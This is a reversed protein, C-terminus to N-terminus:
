LNILHTIERLTENMASITKLISQYNSAAIKDENLDDLIGRAENLIGAIQREVKKVDTESYGALYRVFVLEDNIDKIRDGIAILKNRVENKQDASLKERTSPPRFFDEIQSESAIHPVNELDLFSSEQEQEEYPELEPIRESRPPSTPATATRGAQPPISPSEINYEGEEEEGGEETEMINEGGVEGESARIHIYKRFYGEITLPIDPKRNILGYDFGLFRSDKQGLIIKNLLNITTTVAEDQPQNNLIIALMVLVKKTVRPNSRGYKKLSPEQEGRHRNEFRHRQMMYSVLCIKFIPIFKLLGSFRIQMIVKMSCIVGYTKFLKVQDYKNMNYELSQPKSLIPATLSESTEDVRPITAPNRKSVDIIYKDLTTQTGPIESPGYKVDANPIVPTTINRIHEKDAPSIRPTIDVNLAQTAM